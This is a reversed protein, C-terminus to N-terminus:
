SRGTDFEECWLSNEGGPGVGRVGSQVM